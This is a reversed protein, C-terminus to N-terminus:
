KISFALIIAVLMPLKICSNANSKVDINILQNIGSEAVKTFQYVQTLLELLKDSHALGVHVITNKDNNHILVLIFWEMAASIIENITYLVDKHNEIIKNISLKMLYKNNKKFENFLIRMEEFHSILSYKYQNKQNIIQMEPLIYKSVLKTPRLNFFNNLNKLYTKLNISGFDKNNEMIIEWSFPLLLPRIDVPRINTNIKNLEKLGKTHPSSPWLDTLKFNERIIEELLINNNDKNNLFEDIM